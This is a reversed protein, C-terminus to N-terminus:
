DHYGPRDEEIMSQTPDYKTPTHGLPYPMNNIIESLGIPPENKNNFKEWEKRAALTANNHDMGKKGGTSNWLQNLQHFKEVIAERMPDVRSSKSEFAYDQTDGDVDEPSFKTRYDEPADRDFSNPQPGVEDPDLGM